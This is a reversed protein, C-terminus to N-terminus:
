HVSGMLSLVVGNTALTNRLEMGEVEMDKRDLEKVWDGEIEDRVLGCAYHIRSVKPLQM